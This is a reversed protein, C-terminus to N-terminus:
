RVQNKQVKIVKSETHLVVSLQQKKIV